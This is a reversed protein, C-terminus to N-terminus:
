DSASLQTIQPELHVAAAYCLRALEDSDAAQAKRQLIHRLHLNFVSAFASSKRVLREDGLKALVDISRFFRGFIEEGSATTIEPRHLETLLSLAEFAEDGLDPYAQRRMKLDHARKRHRAIKSSFARGVVIAAVVIIFIITALM